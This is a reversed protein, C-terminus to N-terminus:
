KYERQVTVMNVYENMCTNEKTYLVVKYTIDHNVEVKIFDPKKKKKKKFYLLLLM